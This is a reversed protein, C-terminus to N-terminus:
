MVFINTVYGSGEGYSSTVFINRDQSVAILSGEITDVATYGYKVEFYEKLTYLKEDDVSYVYPQSSLGYPVDAFFIDGNSMVGDVRLNQINSDTITILEGAEVDYLYAYDKPHWVGETYDAYKSAVYKGDPSIYTFMGGYVCNWFDMDAEDDYTMEMLDAGVVMDSGDPLNWLASVETYDSTLLGYGSIVGNAGIGKAAAMALQRGDAGIPLSLNKITSNEYVFPVFKYTEDMYYGVVKEGKSNVANFCIETAGAPVPVYTIEGNSYIVAEKSTLEQGYAVGEDTIDNLGIAPIITLSDRRVDYLYSGDQFNGVVFYGNDSIAFPAVTLEAPEFSVYENKLYKSVMSPEGNVTAVNDKVDLQVAYGYYTSLYLLDDFEASGVGQVYLAEGSAIKESIFAVLGENNGGCADYEEQSILGFTYYITSDSPTVGVEITRGVSNLVVSFEAVPTEEPVDSKQCAVAFILATIIFLTSLLSKKM